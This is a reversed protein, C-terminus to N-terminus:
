EVESTTRLVGWYVQEGTEMESNAKGQSAPNFSALTIHALCQQPTTQAFKQLFVM